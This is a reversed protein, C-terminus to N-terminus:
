GQAGLAAKIEEVAKAGIGSIALLADDGEDAVARLADTTMVGAAELSSKIRGSLDLDAVAGAVSDSAGKAVEKAATAGEAAQEVEAVTEESVETVAEAVSETVEEAEAVVDDAVAPADEVVEAVTEAAGVSVEEAEAVVDDTVEPADEVVEAAAVPAEETAPEAKPEAKPEDKATDKATDKAKPAKEATEPAAVKKAGPKRGGRLTTTASVQEAPAGAVDAIDAGAHVQKLKDGLGLNRFFREVAGSPQAGVSLWYLARDEKIVVTPPETRPNYHGITEIFRGDRPSRKDAVVVRYSPQKKAGVRRLRIRVM